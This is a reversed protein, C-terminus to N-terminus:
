TKAEEAPVDEVDVKQYPVDNVIKVWKADVDQAQDEILLLRDGTKPDEVQLENSVGGAPTAGRYTIRKKGGAAM